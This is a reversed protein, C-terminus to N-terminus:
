CVFPWFPGPFLVCLDTRLGSLAFYLPLFFVTVLDEIKETMHHRFSGEHPMFLGVIFGGFIAHVGIIQAISESILM